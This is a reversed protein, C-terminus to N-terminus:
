ILWHFKPRNRRAAIYNVAAKLARTKKQQSDRVAPDCNTRRCSAVSLGVTTISRKLQTVACDPTWFFFRNM